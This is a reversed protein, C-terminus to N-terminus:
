IIHYPIIFSLNKSPYIVFFPRTTIKIISEKLCKVHNENLNRNNALFGVVYGAKLLDKLSYLQNTPLNNKNFVAGITKGASTEKNENGTNQTQQDLGENEKPEM